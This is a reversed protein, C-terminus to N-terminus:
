KNGKIFSLELSKFITILWWFHLKIAIFIFFITRIVYFILYRITKGNKEPIKFDQSETQIKRSKREQYGIPNVWMQRTEYM